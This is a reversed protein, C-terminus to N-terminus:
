GLCVTIVLMQFPFVPLLYVQALVRRKKTVKHVVALEDLSDVSPDDELSCGGKELDKIVSTYAVSRMRLREASHLNHESHPTSVGSQGGRWVFLAGGTSSSECGPHSHLDYVPPEVFVRRCHRDKAMLLWKQRREVTAIDDDLFLLDNQVQKM